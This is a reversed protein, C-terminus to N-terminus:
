RELGETRVHVMGSSTKVLAFKWGPPPPGVGAGLIAAVLAAELQPLDGLNNLQVPQGMQEGIIDPTSLSRVVLDLCTECPLSYAGTLVTGCAEAAIALIADAVRAYDKARCEAM